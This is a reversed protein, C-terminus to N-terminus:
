RAVCSVATGKLRCVCTKWDPHEQLCVDLALSKEKQRDYVVALYQRDLTRDAKVEAL